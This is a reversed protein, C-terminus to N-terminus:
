DSDARFVRRAFRWGGDTRRLTDDYTGMMALARPTGAFLLLNARAHAEDGEIDIVENVVVHRLGAPVSAAFKRLAERGVVPGGGADFVADETFLAAWGEDDHSDMLHNYRALLQRIDGRAESLTSM